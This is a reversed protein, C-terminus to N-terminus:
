PEDAWYKGFQRSALRYSSRACDGRCSTVKSPLGRLRRLWPLPTPFNQQSLIHARHALVILPSCPRTAHCETSLSPLTPSVHPCSLARHIRNFPLTYNIFAQASPPPPLTPPPPPHPTGGVHPPPPPKSASERYSGGVPLVRWPMPKCSRWAIPPRTVFNQM